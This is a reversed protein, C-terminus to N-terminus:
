EKLIKLKRKMPLSKGRQMELEENLIWKCKKRTLIVILKKLLTMRHEYCQHTKDFWTPHSMNTMNVCEDIIYKGIRPFDMLGEFLSSFVDYHINCIQYFLDSPNKLLLRHEGFNKAFIFDETCSTPFNNM